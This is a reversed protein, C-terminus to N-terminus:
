STCALSRRTVPIGWRQLRRAVLGTVYPVQAAVRPMLETGVEVREPQVGIAVTREPLRGRLEALAIVDRLDIEHPSLKTGLFVPLSARELEVPTGPSWGIDIADVFIVAEADELVPLLNMGWTGGDVLEVADGTDWETRLRELVVLGFGDDGMLPNGVGIVIVRAGDNM